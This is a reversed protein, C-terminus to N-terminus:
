LPRSSYCPYFSVVSEGLAQFSARRQGAKM